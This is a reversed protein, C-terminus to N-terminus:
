WHIFFLLSLCDLSNCIFFVSSSPMLILLCSEFSLSYLPIVTLPIEVIYGSWSIKVYLCVLFNEVILVSQLSVDTLNSGLSIAM